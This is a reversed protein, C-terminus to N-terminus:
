SGSIMWAGATLASHTGRLRLWPCPFGVTSVAHSNVCAVVTSFAAQSQQQKGVALGCPAKKVSRPEVRAIVPSVRTPSWGERQISNVLWFSQFVALASHVFNAPTSPPSKVANGHLIVQVPKCSPHVARPTFSAQIPRLLGNLRMSSRSVQDQTLVFPLTVYEAQASPYGLADAPSQPNSFATVPFHCFVLQPPYPWHAYLFANTHSM